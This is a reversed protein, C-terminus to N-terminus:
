LSLHPLTITILGHGYKLRVEKQWTLLKEPHRGATAAEREEQLFLRQCFVFSSWEGVGDM